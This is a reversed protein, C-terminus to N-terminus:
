KVDPTKRYLDRILKILTLIGVPVAILGSMVRLWINLEEFNMFLSACLTVASKILVDYKTILIQPDFSM